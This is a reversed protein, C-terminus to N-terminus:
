NVLDDILAEVSGPKSHRPLLALELARLLTRHWETDERRDLSVLLRLHKAVIAWDTQGYRLEYEWYDWAEKILHRCTLCEPKQQAIAFLHRSLKIRGIARCQIALEAAAAPSFKIGKLSEPDDAIPVAQIDLGTWFRSLAKHVMLSSIDKSKPQLQ